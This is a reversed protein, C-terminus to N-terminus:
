GNLKAAQKIWSSFVGKRLDAKSRIKVHRMKQGTGELLGQPDDLEIGAEFFQLAVYGKGGRVSCVLGNDEYVPVGWKIVEKSDPLARLILARLDAGLGRM